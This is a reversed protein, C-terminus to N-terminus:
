SIIQDCSGSSPTKISHVEATPGGNATSSLFCLWCCREPNIVILLETRNKKPRMDAKPCAPEHWSVERSTMVTPIVVTPPWEWPGGIM